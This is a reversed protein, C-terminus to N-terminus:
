EPKPIYSESMELKVVLIIPDKLNKKAEEAEERTAYTKIWSYNSETGFYLCYRTLM